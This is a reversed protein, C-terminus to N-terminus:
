SDSYEGIGIKFKVLYVNSKLLPSNLCNNM